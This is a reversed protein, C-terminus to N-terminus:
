ILDLFVDHIEEAMVLNGTPNSGKIICIKGSYISFSSIKSIDLKVAILNSSEKSGVFHMLQDDIKKSFDSSVIMGFYTQPETHIDAVDAFLQNKQYSKM